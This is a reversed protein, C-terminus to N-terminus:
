VLQLFFVSIKCVDDTVNDNRSCKLEAGDKDVDRGSVMKIVSSNQDRTVRFETTNVICHPCSDNECSACQAVTGYTGNLYTISWYMGYTPERYFCSIRRQANEVVFCGSLRYAEIVHITCTVGPPSDSLACRITTNHHDTENAVFRVTSVDTGNSAPGRTINYDTDSVNVHQCPISSNSLCTGITMEAGTSPTTISWTYNHQAFLGTCNISAQTGHVIDIQGGNCATLNLANVPLFCALMVCFSIFVNM